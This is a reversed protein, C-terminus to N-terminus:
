EAEDDDSAFSDHDLDGTGDNSPLQGLRDAPISKAQRIQDQVEDVVVRARDIQALVALPM